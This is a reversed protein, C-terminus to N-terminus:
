GMNEYAQKLVRESQKCVDSWHLSMAWQKASKQLERYRIPDEQLKVAERAM